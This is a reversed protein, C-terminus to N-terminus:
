LWLVPIESVFGTDADLFRVYQNRQGFRYIRATEWAGNASVRKLLRMEGNRWLDEGHSPEVRGLTGASLEDLSIDRRGARDCLDRYIDFANTIQTLDQRTYDSLVRLDFSIINYGVVRDHSDFINLLEGITSEDYQRVRMTHMDVASAITLAQGSAHKPDRRTEIDFAIM